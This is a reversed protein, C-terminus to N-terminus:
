TAQALDAAIREPRSGLLELHEKAAQEAGIVLLKRAQQDEILGVIHVAFAAPDAVPVALVESYGAFVEGVIGVDTTIIPVRALAAEILTRGYGEYASAQIFANASRMFGLTETPTKEGLFIVKSGLGLRAVQRMLRPKERGDGVIFLGASPYREHILALADIIDEIRKEPELRSATILSFTFDHPPFPIPEPLTVSVEIPIVAPVPIRTGYQAVLSDKIRKSVVRIGNAHPLVHDAIRVRVRNLLPMRVSQARLGGSRVFWPSRFDTHVQIHLKAPTGTVARLAAWGHEFPDQASVVEIGHTRILKRAAKLLAFLSSLRGAKKMHLHLPGDDISFTRPGRSLIHLEGIAEAYSRIRVRTASGEIFLSPDNSVFLAKM